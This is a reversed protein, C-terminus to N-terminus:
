MMSEGPWMGPCMLMRARVEEVPPHIYRAPSEACSTLNNVPSFSTASTSIPAPFLNHKCPSLCPASTCILLTPSSMLLFSSSTCTRIACSQSHYSLFLPPSANQGPTIGATAYTARALRANRLTPYPLHRHRRHTLRLQSSHEDM